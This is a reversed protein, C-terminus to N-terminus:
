IYGFQFSTSNSVAQQEDRVFVLDLTQDLVAFFLHNLPQVHVVGDVEEIDGILSPGIVELVFGAGEDGLVQLRELVRCLPLL